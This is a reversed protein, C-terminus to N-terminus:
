NCSFVLGLILLLGLRLYQVRWGLFHCCGGVDDVLNKLRFLLSGGVFFDLELCYFSFLIRAFYM